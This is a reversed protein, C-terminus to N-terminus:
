LVNQFRFESHLLFELNTFLPPKAERKKSAFEVDEGQEMSWAGHEGSGM